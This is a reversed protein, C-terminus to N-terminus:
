SELSLLLDFTLTSSRMLKSVRWISHLKAGITEEIVISGTVNATTGLFLSYSLFMFFFISVLIKLNGISFIEKRGELTNHNLKPRWRGYCVIDATPRNRNDLWKDLQIRCRHAGDPCIFKVEGWQNLLIKGDTHYM